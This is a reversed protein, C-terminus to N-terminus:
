TDNNTKNTNDNQKMLDISQHLCQRIDDHCDPGSDGHACFCFSKNNKFNCTGGNGCPNQCQEDGGALIAGHRNLTVM